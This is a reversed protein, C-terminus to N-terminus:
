DTVGPLAFISALKFVTTFMLRTEIVCSERGAGYAHIISLGGHRYNGLIGFHQPETILSLVIVDGIQMSEAPVEVMHQRALEMLCGDPNKTYGRIDFSPDILGLEWACGIILGICDVGVGKLRAQHHYPTGIWSRAQEVVKTRTVM